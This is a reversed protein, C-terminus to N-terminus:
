IHSYLVHLCQHGLNGYKRQNKHVFINHSINWVTFQITYASVLDLFFLWNVKSDWFLHKFQHFLVYSDMVLTFTPYFFGDWLDNNPMTLIASHHCRHDRPISKEIRGKFLYFIRKRAWWQGNIKFYAELLGQILWSANNCSSTVKVYCHCWKVVMHTLEFVVLTCGAHSLTPLIILM